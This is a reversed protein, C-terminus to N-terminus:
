SACCLSDVVFENSKSLIWIIRRAMGSTVHRGTRNSFWGLLTAVVIEVREEVVESLWFGTRFHAAIFGRNLLIALTGTIWKSVPSKEILTTLIYFFLKRIEASMVGLRGRVLELCLILMDTAGLSFMLACGNFCIKWIETVPVWWISGADGMCARPTLGKGLQTIFLVIGQPPKARQYLFSGIFISFHCCAARVNM